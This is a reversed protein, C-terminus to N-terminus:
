QNTGQVVLLKQGPYISQNKKLKNLASLTSVTIGYKKAVKYLTDGRRVTYYTGKAQSSAPAGSSTATSLAGKKPRDTDRTLKELRGGLSAGSRELEAISNELGKMESELRTLNQGMSDLQTLRKEIQDVRAKISKMDDSLEKGNGGFFLAILIILILVAAGWLFLTRRQINQGPLIGSQRSDKGKRWNHRIDEPVEEIMEQMERDPSQGM